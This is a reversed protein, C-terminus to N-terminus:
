KSKVMNKSNDNETSNTKVEDGEDSILSKLEEQFSTLDTFDRYISAFRIYAINDIKRLRRMVMEGIHSSKVEHSKHNLLKTEIELAINELVEFPIARKECSKLLGGLLKQRDFQQRRGDKKVIVLNLVEVQEYTTFRKTCKLCERRRRTESESERTELVKTDGCRCYPCKM